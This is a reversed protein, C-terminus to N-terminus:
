IHPLVLTENIVYIQCQTQILQKNTFFNNGHFLATPSSHSLTYSPIRHRAASNSALRQVAM